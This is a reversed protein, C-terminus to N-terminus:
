PAHTKANVPDLLGLSIAKAVAHSRSEAELLQMVAAVQNNVTGAALHMRAAVQKSSLGQQIGELIETQRTTLRVGSKRPASLTPPFTGIGRLVDGLRASLTEVPTSKAVYGLFGWARLQQVYDDRDYASLVCCISAMDRTVVQKALSLGFAGPVALDLFVRFWRGPGEELLRLADTASSVTVVRIDDFRRELLQATAEAVLPHDEVVLVERM